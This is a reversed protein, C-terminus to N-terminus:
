SCPLGGNNRERIDQGLYYLFVRGVAETTFETHAHPAVVLDGTETTNQVRYNVDIWLAGSNSVRFRNGCVYELTIASTPVREPLTDAIITRVCRALDRLAAPASTSNMIPETTAAMREIYDSPLAAATLYEAETQAALRCSAGMPVTVFTQWTESSRRGLTREHQSLLLLLSMMRADLSASTSSAVERATGFITTHRVKSAASHLALLYVSDVSSRANWLANGLATVGASGCQAIREWGAGTPSGANLAAVAADCEEATPAPAAIRQAPLPHPLLYACMLVTYIHRLPRM